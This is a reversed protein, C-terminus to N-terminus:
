GFACKGKEKIWETCVAIPHPVLVPKLDVMSHLAAESLSVGYVITSPVTVSGEVLLSMLASPHTEHAIHQSVRGHVFGVLNGSEQAADQEERCQQIGISLSQLPLASM